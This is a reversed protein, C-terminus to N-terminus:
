AADGGTPATPVTARALREARDLGQSFRQATRFSKGSWGFARAGDILELKRAGKSTAPRPEGRAVIAVGTYTQRKAGRRGLSAPRGLSRVPEDATGGIILGFKAASPPRPTHRRGHPLTAKRM